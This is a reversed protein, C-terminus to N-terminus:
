EFLSIRIAYVDEALASKKALNDREERSLLSYNQGVFDQVAARFEEQSITIITDPPYYVQDQNAFTSFLRNPEDSSTQLVDFADFASQEDPGLEALPRNEKTSDAPVIVVAADDKTSEESTSTCSLLFIFAYLSFQM